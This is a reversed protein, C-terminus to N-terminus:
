AHAKTDSSPTTVLRDVVRSAWERTPQDVPGFERDMEVLLSALDDGELKEVLAETVLASMTDPQGTALRKDAAQAVEEPVTVTLKRYRLGSASPRRLRKAPKATSRPM